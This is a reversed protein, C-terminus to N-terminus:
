KFPEAEWRYTGNLYHRRRALLLLTHIHTTHDKRAGSNRWKLWHLDSPALQLGETMGRQNPTINQVVAHQNVVAHVAHPCDSKSCKKM